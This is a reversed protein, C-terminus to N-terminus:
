KIKSDKFVMKKARFITVSDWFQMKRVKLKTKQAQSKTLEDKYKTTNTRIMGGMLINKLNNLRLHLAQYKISM